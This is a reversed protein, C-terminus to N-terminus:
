SKLLLDFHVTVMEGVKIRGFMLKPPKLDYETMKLPYAGTVHLVGSDSTAVAPIAVTKQVGGLSLTGTLTGAVGGASRSVDYGSLTFEITPNADVKLAKKMHEDMTGNGCEMKASQVRVRVARVGKEGAAVQAIANPAGDIVATVDPARCTWKRMTSTGDVWLKSEPQLTLERYSSWAVLPLAFASSAVLTRIFRRSLAQM